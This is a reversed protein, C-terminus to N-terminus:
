GELPWVLGAGTQQTPRILSEISRFGTAAIHYRQGGGLVRSLLIIGIVM